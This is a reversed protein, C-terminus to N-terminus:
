FCAVIVGPAPSLVGGATAVAGLLLGAVPVPARGPRPGRRLVARDSLWGCAVMGVGMALTLLSSFLRATEKPRGLVNEFYHQSWYFFLYQFYGVAAYSLTLFLLRRDGLLRFLEGPAASPPSPGGRGQGAGGPPHDAGLLAWALAVLLTLG